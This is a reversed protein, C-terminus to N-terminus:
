LSLSRLLDRSDFLTRLEGPMTHLSSQQYESREVDFRWVGHLGRRKNRHLGSPLLVLRDLVDRDFLTRLEARLSHLSGPWDDVEVHVSRV